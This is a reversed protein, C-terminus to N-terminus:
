FGLNPPTVTATLTYTRYGGNAAYTPDPRATRAGITINIQRIVPTDAASTALSGDAKVYAFSFLMVNDAMTEISGGPGEQRMIRLNASDYSYRVDELTTGSGPITGNGNLDAQIRLETTSFPLGSFSGGNPKYGAMKLERTMVDLVGRTNQEMDKTLEQAKHVKAQAIFTTTVVALISLGLGMAVLLEFLTLGRVKSLKAVTM